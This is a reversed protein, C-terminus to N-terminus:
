ARWRDHIRRQLGFDGARLIRLCGSKMKLLRLLASTIWACGQRRERRYRLRKMRDAGSDPMIVDSPFDPACVILAWGGQPNGKHM